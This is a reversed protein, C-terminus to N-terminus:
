RGMAVLGREEKLRFYGQLVQRAVPTAVAGGRGANEVLVVVAIEPEYAPAFSVFWAHEKFEEPDAPKAERGIVQATGTKGAVDLGEIRARGGTGGAENVVGWLARRLFDVSERKLNLNRILRGEFRALVKGEPSEIRSVVWPQYLRGGNAVTAYANLLQLPTVLNYSQGIAISLAEGPYWRRRLVRERFSASPVVGRKEEGLGIGTEQGLGLMEAYKAMREIGVKLGLRYFYTNCSQVIAKHLDVFGHGKEKWDKFVRNGFVFYGPDFIKEEPNVLGEELAALAVVLKFTSGPSYQGQLARNQLPSLSDSSLVEWDSRSLREAFRNPDFAPNSLYALVEGNQPNMAVVVGPRGALAEEAIRQLKLDLTLFLNNGPIPGVEELTSVQRGLSDVELALRGDIGRIERDFRMELGSKGVMSGLRYNSPSSGKLQEPGIEGMYGLLHAALEGYPYNRRPRVMVEVGPLELRNTEVLALEGRRLNEKIIIPGYGGKELREKVGEMDFDLLNKLRDLVLLPHPAGEPNLRLQFSLSNDAIVEGYRDYIIGRPAMIPVVRLRNRKALEAFYEGKIIQLYWLRGILILFLSATVLLFLKLRKRLFEPYEGDKLMIPPM